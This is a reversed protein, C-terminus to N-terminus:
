AARNGGGVLLAELDTRRIVTRAGIKVFPLSGRANLNYLTRVSVGIVHAAEPLRYSLPPLEPPEGSLATVFETPSPM